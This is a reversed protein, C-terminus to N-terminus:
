RACPAPASPGTASLTLPRTASAQGRAPGRPAHAALGSALQRRESCSGLIVRSRSRSPRCPASITGRRSPLAACARLPPGSVKARRRARPPPIRVKRRMQLVWYQKGFCRQVWVGVPFLSRLDEELGEVDGREVGGDLGDKRQVDSRRSPVIVLVLGVDRHNLYADPRVVPM